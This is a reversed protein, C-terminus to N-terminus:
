EPPPPLPTGVTTGGDVVFEHGTSYTAGTLLFLLMATVEEPEGIRDIPQTAAMDPRLGATMPTRIPGPHISNVRIGSRALELAAAKTLGRVGWKSAVYAGINSYGQLGATSSVNVISGGGARRMSPAVARIGLWTGTLNVDITRQWDAPPMEEITGWTVIGANNVLVSVAGYRAEATAVADSWQQEDTVDLHVYTVADGLEQALSEGDDDLVDGAVVFAGHAVLGRVHAAGMGRAAGTVIAVAGELSTGHGAISGDTM